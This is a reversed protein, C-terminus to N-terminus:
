IYFRRYVGGPPFGTRGTVISAEFSGFDISARSTSPSYHSKGRPRAGKARESAKTTHTDHTAHISAQGRKKREISRIAGTKREKEKEKEEEEEGEKKKKQKRESTPEETNVAQSTARSQRDHRKTENRKTGSRKTGCHRLELLCGLLRRELERALRHMLFHVLVAVSPLFFRPLLLRRSIIIRPLKVLPLVVSALIAIMLIPLLRQRLSPMRLPIVFLAVVVVMLQHSLSM